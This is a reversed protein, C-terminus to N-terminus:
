EARRLLCCLLELMMAKPARTMPTSIALIITSSHTFALYSAAAMLHAHIHQGLDLLGLAQLDHVLLTLSNEPRSQM